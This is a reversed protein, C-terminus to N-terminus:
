GGAARREYAEWAELAMPLARPDALGIDEVAMRVIRRALYRDCGGDLM